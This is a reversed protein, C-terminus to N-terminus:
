EDHVLMDVVRIGTGGTAHLRVSGCNPCADTRAAIAVSGNCALCWASGAPEDIELRAGELCTGPAIADLAFRLARVEVGALAGVELRLTGVRCFGERLAAQEVLSLVGGALSAEHM